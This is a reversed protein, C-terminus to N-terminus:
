RLSLRHMHNRREGQFEHGKLRDRFTSAPLNYVRIAQETSRIKGDKLDQIACQIRGEQEVLEQKTKRTKRPM